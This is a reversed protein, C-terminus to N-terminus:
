VIRAPRRGRSSFAAIGLDIAFSCPLHPKCTKAVRETKGRGNCHKKRAASRLGRDADHGATTDRVMKRVVFRKIVRACRLIEPHGFAHGVNCNNSAASLARTGVATGEAPAYMGKDRNGRSLLQYYIDAAVRGSFVPTEVTSCIAAVAERAIAAAASRVHPLTTILEDVADEYGPATATSATPGVIRVESAGATFAAPVGPTGASVAPIGV